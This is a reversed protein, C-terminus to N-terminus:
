ARGVRVRINAGNRAIVVASYAVGAQLCQIFEDMRGVGAIAGVTAGSVPHKCVAVVYSGRPEAEIVFVMSMMVTAAVSPNVSMLPIEFAHNCQMGPDTQGGGGGGADPGDLIPPPNPSLPVPDPAAGGPRPNRSGGGDGGGKGM